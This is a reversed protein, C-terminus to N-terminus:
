KLIVMNFKHKTKVIWDKSSQYTEKQKTWTSNMSYAILYDYCILTPAM